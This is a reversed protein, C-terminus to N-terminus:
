IPLSVTEQLHLLQGFMINSMVKVGFMVIGSIALLTGLPVWVTEYMGGQAIKIAFANIVAVALVFISSALTATDMPIPQFPLIM